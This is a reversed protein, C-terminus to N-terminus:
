ARPSPQTRIRRYPMWRRPSVPASPTARRGPVQDARDVGFWCVVSTRGAVLCILEAWRFSADHRRDTFDRRAENPCLYTAVLDRCGGAPSAGKGAFLLYTPATVAEPRIGLEDCFSPLTLERHGSGAGTTLRVVGRSKVYEVRAATAGDGWAISRPKTM